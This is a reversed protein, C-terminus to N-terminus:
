RERGSVEVPVTARVQRDANGAPGDVAVATRPCHHNDKSRWVAKRGVRCDGVTAPFSGNRKGKIEVHLINRVRRERACRGELIRMKSGTQRPAIEVFITHAIADST